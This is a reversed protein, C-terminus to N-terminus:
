RLYFWTAQVKTEFDRSLRGGLCEYVTYFKLSNIWSYARTEGGCEIYSKELFINGM